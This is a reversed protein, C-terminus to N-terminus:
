LANTDPLSHTPRYFVPIVYSFLWLQRKTFGTGTAACDPVCAKIARLSVNHTRIGSVANNTKKKKNQAALHLYRGQTPSIGREFFGVM